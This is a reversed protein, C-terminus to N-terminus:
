RNGEDAEARRLAQELAAAVQRRTMPGPTTAQVIVTADHDTDFVRKPKSGESTRPHGPGRKWERAERVTLGGTRARELLASQQSADSEKAIEVLVSKSVKDSTRYDNRFGEPLQLLRLSENISVQSRGVRKAMQEQTLGFEDMLRRYVGAEEFPNLDKRHLNEILQIELQSQEELTRVTARVHELGAERSARFRREGAIIRFRGNGVPRVIIPNIVGHTKISAALEALDGVDKRPQDPDPEIDALRISVVSGEEPALPDFELRREGDAAQRLRESLTSAM